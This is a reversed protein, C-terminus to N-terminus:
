AECEISLADEIKHTLDWQSEESEQLKGFVKRITAKRADKDQEDLCGAQNIYAYINRKAEAVPIGQNMQNEVYVSVVIDLASLNKKKTPQTLTKMPMLLRYQEMLTRELSHLFSPDQLSELEVARGKNLVEPKNLHMEFKLFHLDPNYGANGIVERIKLGQKMKVNRGADYLKLVLGDKGDWWRFAGRDKGKENLYLHSHDRANHNKIYLSPSYEVPFICGYEFVDLSADWLSVGLLGQLMSVSEVFDSNSFSFNHSQWWYPLSGKIKLMGAEPNWHVELKKCGQLTYTEWGYQNLKCPFPKCHGLNPSDKCYYQTAEIFDIM